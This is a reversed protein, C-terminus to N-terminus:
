VLVGCLSADLQVKDLYQTLSSQLADTPVGNPEAM